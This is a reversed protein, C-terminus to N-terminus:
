GTSVAAYLFSVQALLTYGNRALLTGCVALVLSLIYMRRSSALISVSSIVIAIQLLVEAFDFYPEKNRNVDRDHEFKRADKEIDKQETPCRVQGM